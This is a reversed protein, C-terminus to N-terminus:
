ELAVQVSSPHFRLSRPPRMFLSNWSSNILAPCRGALNPRRHIQALQRGALCRRQRNSSAIHKEAMSATYTTSQCTELLFKLNRAAAAVDGHNSLRTAPQALSPWRLRPALKVLAFNRSAMSVSIASRINPLVQKCRPSGTESAVTRATTNPPAPLRLAQLPKSGAPRGSAQLAHANIQSPPPM